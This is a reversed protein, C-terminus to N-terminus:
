SFLKAWMLMLVNPFGKESPHFSTITESLAKTLSTENFQTAHELIFPAQLNRYYNLLHPFM